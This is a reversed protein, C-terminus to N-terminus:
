MRHLELIASMRLGSTRSTLRRVDRGLTNGSQFRAPPACLCRTVRNAITCRVARRWEEEHDEAEEDEDEDNTKTM